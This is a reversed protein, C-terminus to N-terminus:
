KLSGMWLQGTEDLLWLRGKADSTMAMPRGGFATPLTYTSNDRWSIGQDRSEWIVGDSGVCLVNGNFTAMQVDDMRPLQYHNSDDFPIYAWKGGGEYPAIKRWVRMTQVDDQRPQGVLLVYDTNDAPAYDWSVAVANGAMPLLSTDDDLTEEQWSEGKDASAMLLGEGTIMYCENSACGVISDAKTLVVSDGQATLRLKETSDITLTAAKGWAFTIGQDSSVNLTVRYDRYASGDSAYVRFVRPQSLDISDTSAYWMLSDSIMSQIAVLGSNKATITCVVHKCDTGVPLNVTNYIRQNLHDITMAYNSGTVSSTVVSDSGTTSTVHTYRNLTGLTFQTIATDSYATVDDDDNKLCSALLAASALLVCFRLSFRKM